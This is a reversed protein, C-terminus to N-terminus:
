RALTIKWRISRLKEVDERTDETNSTIFYENKGQGDNKVSEPFAFLKVEGVGKLYVIIGKESYDTYHSFCTERGYFSAIAM